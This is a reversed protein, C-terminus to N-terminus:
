HSLLVPVPAHALVHRSVGGFVLERLRTHGYAGMVLLDADQSRVRACIQEGVTDGTAKLNVVTPKVAHRALADAVAGIPLVDEGAQLLTRETAEHITLLEVNQAGKLLPLADFIARAAERSHNWAIVVSKPLAAASHGKPVVLVPRGSEIALRGPFDLRRSAEWDPDAQNAIVLDAARSRAVVIRAPDTDEFPLARWEAVFREKETLDKFIAGLREAEQQPNETAATAPDAAPAGRAESAAPYVYLGVLRADFVRAIQVAHSLASVVRRADNMHVLITRYAV